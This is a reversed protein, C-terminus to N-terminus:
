KNQRSKRYQEVRREAFMDIWRIFFIPVPPEFEEKPLYTGHGYMTKPNIWTKFLFDAIPIGFFGSIGENCKPNAHHRLHFGYAIRWFKRILLNSHEIKPCWWELSKHELAHLLEYLSISFALAFAGEVFIPASPLMIQIPVFLITLLLIFVGYSYWPFFSAEHQKEEIIPYYNEVGTKRQIVRTLGHHKTHSKYFTSLGPILPCHLVYRHFPHEFLANFLHCVLFVSIHSTISAQWQIDWIAPAIFKLATLYLGLSTLIIIIFLTASFPKHEHKHPDSHSM